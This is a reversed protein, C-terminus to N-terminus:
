YRSSLEFAFHYPQIKSAVTPGHCNPSITLQAWPIFSCQQMIRLITASLHMRYSFGGLRLSGSAVIVSQMFCLVQNPTQSWYFRGNKLTLCQGRALGTRHVSRIRGICHPDNAYGTRVADDINSNFYWKISLQCFNIQNKKKKYLPDLYYYLLYVALIAVLATFIGGFRIAASQIFLDLSMRFGLRRWM